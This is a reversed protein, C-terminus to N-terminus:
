LQREPHQALQDQSSPQPRGASFSISNECKAPVEGHKTDSELRHDEARFTPLVWCCCSHQLVGGFRQSAALHVNCFYLANLPSPQMVNADRDLSAFGRHNSRARKLTMVMLGPKELAQQRVHPSSAM